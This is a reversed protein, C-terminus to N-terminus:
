SFSYFLKRWIIACPNLVPNKMSKTPSITKENILVVENKFNKQIYYLSTISFTKFMNLM